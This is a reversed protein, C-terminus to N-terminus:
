PNRAADVMRDVWDSFVADVGMRLLETLTHDFQADWAFALREFRHALTVLGGNWDSHHMNLAAVGLDALQALRREPGHVDRFQPAVDRLVDFDECCLYTRASLHPRTTLMERVVPFADRDKVDLSVAVDHREALDLLQGLTPIHAPLDAREVEKISRRRLRSGVVGDHDLVAVGDRTLWVDSELGTAGLKLALAFAPLTNEQEHARAGRHAFLLQPRLM